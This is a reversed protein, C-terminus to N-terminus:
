KRNRLNWEGETVEDGYWYWYDRSEFDSWLFGTWHGHPKNTATMPGKSTWTPSHPHHTTMSRWYIVDSWRRRSDCYVTYERGELDPDCHHDGQLQLDPKDWKQSKVNTWVQEYVDLSWFTFLVAAIPVLYWVRRCARKIWQRRIADCLFWCAVGLAAYHCFVFPGLPQGLGGLWFLSAFVCAVGAAATSERLWRTICRGIPILEAATHHESAPPPSEAPFAPTVPPPPPPAKAVVRLPHGCSPCEVQEGHGAALNIQQNCYPCTGAPMAIRGVTGFLWLTEFRNRDEWTM